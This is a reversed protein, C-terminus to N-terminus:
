QNFPLVMDPGRLIIPTEASKTEGSKTEVSKTEASSTEVNKAEVNKTQVSKSAPGFKDFINFRLPGTQSGTVTEFHQEAEKGKSFRLPGKQSGTAAEFHEVAEKSYDNGTAALPPELHCVWGSRVINVSCPAHEMVYTSFSGLNVSPDDTNGRAGCFIQTIHHHKAWEVAAMPPTQLPSLPTIVEKQFNKIHHEHTYKMYASCIVDGFHRTQKNACEIIERCINIFRTGPSWTLVPSTVNVVWVQDEPNKFRMAYGFAHDAPESGDVLVMIKEKGGGSM